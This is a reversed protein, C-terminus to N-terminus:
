GLGLQAKVAQIHRDEATKIAFLAYRLPAAAQREVTCCNPCIASRSTSQVYIRLEDQRNDVSIVKFPGGDSFVLKSANM